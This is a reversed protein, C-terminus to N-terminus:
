PGGRPNGLPQPTIEVPFRNSPRGAVTVVVDSAGIQTDPVVVVIRDDDWRLVQAGVAGFSVFGGLPAPDGTYCLDIAADRGVSADRPVAADAMGGDRVGSDRVAADLFIGADRGADANGGDSAFVGVPRFRAGLIQVCTGVAARSPLVNDIRPDSANSSSCGAAGALALALV